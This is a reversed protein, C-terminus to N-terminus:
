VYSFLYIFEKSLKQTTNKDDPNDVRTSYKYMKYNIYKVIFAICFYRFTHFKLLLLYLFCCVCLINSRNVLSLVM